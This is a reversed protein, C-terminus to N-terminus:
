IIARKNDKPSRKKQKNNFQMKKVIQPRANSHLKQLIKSSNVNCALCVTFHRYQAAILILSTLPFNLSSFSISMRHFYLSCIAFQLEVGYPFVDALALAPNHLLLIAAEFVLPVFFPIIM